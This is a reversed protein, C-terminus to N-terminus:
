HKNKYIFLHSPFEKPINADDCTAHVSMSQSQPYDCGEILKVILSSPASLYPGLNYVIEHFISFKFWSLIHWKVASFKENPFFIRFNESKIIARLIKKKGKFCFTLHEYINTFHSRIPQLLYNEATLHHLHFFQHYLFWLHRSKEKWHRILYRPMWTLFSKKDKAFLLLHSDTNLITITIDSKM